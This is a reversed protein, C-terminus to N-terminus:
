QGIGKQPNEGCVHRGHIAHVCYMCLMCVCLSCCCCQMCCCVFYFWFDFGLLVICINSWVNSTGAYDSLDLVYDSLDLMCNLMISMKRTSSM